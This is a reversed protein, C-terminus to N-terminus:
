PEETKPLGFLWAKAKELRERQADTLVGWAAQFKARVAEEIAVRAPRTEELFREFAPLLAAFRGADVGVAKEVYSAINRAARRLVKEGAELRAPGDAASIWSAIEEKLADLGEAGLANALLFLKRPPPLDRVKQVFAKCKAKEEEPLAAWAERLSAAFREGAERLAPLKERVAERVEGAIERLRAEQEATLDSLFRARIADILGRPEADESYLFGGLAALVLTWGSIKPFRKM